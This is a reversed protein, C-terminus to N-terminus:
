VSRLLERAEAITDSRVICVSDLTPNADAENVIEELIRRLANREAVLGRVQDFHALHWDNM